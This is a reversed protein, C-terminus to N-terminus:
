CCIALLAQNAVSSWGCRQNASPQAATLAETWSLQIKHVKSMKPCEIVMFKRKDEGTPMPSYLLVAASEFLFEEWSRVVM